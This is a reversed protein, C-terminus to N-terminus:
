SKIAFIKLITYSTVSRNSLLVTKESVQEGRSRPRFPFNTNADLAILIIIAEIVFTVM